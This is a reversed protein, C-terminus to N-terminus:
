PLVNCGGQLGSQGREMVASRSFCFRIQAGAEVQSGVERGLDRLSLLFISSEQLALESHEHRFASAGCPM